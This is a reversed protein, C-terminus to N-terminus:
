SCRSTHDRYFGSMIALIITIIIFPHWTILITTIHKMAIIITTIVTNRARIIDNTIITMHVTDISSARDPNQMIETHEINVTGTKHTRRARNAINEIQANIVDVIVTVAINLIANASVVITETGRPILAM